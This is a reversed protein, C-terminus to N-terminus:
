DFVTIQSYCLFKKLFHTETVNYTHIYNTHDHLILWECLEVESEGSPGRQSCAVDRNYFVTLYHQM